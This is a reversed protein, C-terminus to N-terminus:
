ELRSEVKRLLKHQCARLLYNLDTWGIRTDPANAGAFNDIGKQDAVGGLHEYFVLAAKNADFVRLCVSRAGAALLRHAASALLRKGIGSGRRRASVHLAEIVADYGPEGVRSVWIFGALAGGSRATLVLEDRPKDILKGRWFQLRESEIGTSLYSEPLIDKYFKRWSATHLAAIADADESAADVITTEPFLREDPVRNFEFSTLDSAAPGPTEVEIVRGFVDGFAARFHNKAKAFTVAFDAPDLGHLRFYAKDNVPVNRSSVIIRVDGTKMVATPGLDVGLGKEMPGENVFQGNTLREVEADTRVPQGFRATLRGGFACNLVAGQGARHARAVLKPDWFFAFLTPTEFGTELVARLLGPTDAGGGSFVNDSPELVAVPGPKSDKALEGALGSLVPAPPPFHVNFNVARDLFSQALRSAEREVDGRSKEACVSISAGTEPGDAYVFGGFASADYFGHEIEAARAEAVTDAMPGSATRMNFSTPAFGAPVVITEPNIKGFMYRGLLALAKEGTERMDVHPYTKYGVVIDAMRGLAPGINAHLDLTVALPVPGTIARVCELLTQEPRTEDAAVASGHLSVYVGDWNRGELGREIRGVLDGFLGPVMPGAPYAATCFIYHAEIEPNVEIFSEVAAIEVNTHRYFDRAAPGALWERGRFLDKDAAIPSFSNGEYWFRIVALHKM